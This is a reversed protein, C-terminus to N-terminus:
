PEEYFRGEVSLHCGKAELDELVAELKRIAPTAREWDFRVLKGRVGDQLLVRVLKAYQKGYVEHLREGAVIFVTALLLPTLHLQAVPLKLMFTVWTWCSGLRFQPPIRRIQDSSVRNKLNSTVNYPDTQCIAAYLAIVGEMRAGYMEASEKAAYGLVKQYEVESQGDKLGPRYAAVLYCKKVMRAMLVDGLEPYGTLILGLVLRALQYSVPINSSVEAESQKILSKSFANCTWIYVEQNTAKMKGFVEGM